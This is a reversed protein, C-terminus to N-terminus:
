GSAFGAGAIVTSPVSVPRMRPVVAYMLGSCVRPDPTSLRASMQDNPQTSNSISVPRAANPRSVTGSVM